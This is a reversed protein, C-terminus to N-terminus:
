EEPVEDFLEMASIVSEAGCYFFVLRLVEYVEQKSAGKQLVLKGHTKITTEVGKACGLALLILEVYKEPVAEIGNKCTVFQHTFAELLVPDNAMKRHFPLLSGGRAEKLDQMLEQATKKPEQNTTM